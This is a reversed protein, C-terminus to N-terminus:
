KPMWDLLVVESNFGSKQVELERFKEALLSEAPRADSGYAHCKVTVSDLSLLEILHLRLEETAAIQIKGPFLETVYYKNQVDVKAGCFFFVNDKAHTVPSLIALFVFVSLFLVSNSQKSM